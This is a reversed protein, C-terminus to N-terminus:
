GWGNRRHYLGGRCDPSKEGGKKMNPNANRIHSKLAAETQFEKESDKCGPVPRKFAM